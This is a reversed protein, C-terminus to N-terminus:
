AGGGAATLDSLARARLAAVQRDIEARREARARWPAMADRAPPPLADLTRLAADFDGDEVLSEARALMADPRAGAVDGVRRVSVIRSLAYLIRDGLAAGEGPTRSASAARSAYDPFSAALASRSPAGTQAVQTLAALEPAAPAASQLAALEAAFPRSGQSAEVLAAAALAAAAAQTTRSEHTELAAIRAHLRELEATSAAVAATPPPAAPAPHVAAPNAAPIPASQAEAQPGASPRSALLRPALLAMAAGAILCVLGFALVVWGGAVRRSRYAAPDMPATMEAPDPAPSM